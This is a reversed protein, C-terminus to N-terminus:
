PKGGSALIRGVPFSSSSSAGRAPPNLFLLITARGARAGECEVLWAADPKDSGDGWQGFELKAFYALGRAANTGFSKVCKPMDDGDPYRPTSIITRTFLLVRSV